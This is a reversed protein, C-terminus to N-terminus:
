LIHFIIIKFTLPMTFVGININTLLHHSWLAMYTAVMHNSLFILSESHVNQIIGKYNLSCLNYVIVDSCIM